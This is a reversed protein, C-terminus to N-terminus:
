GGVVEWDEGIVDAQSALWPIFTDDATKMGVWPALTVVKEGEDYSGEPYVIGCAVDYKGNGVLRLWMGKGNWGSRAVKKGAKMMEVAHGFSMSGSAQYAAEFQEKPSWSVYGEYGEVNPKGGDLYEVLYGEDEGNEDEPLIWGRFHTYDLRTLPEAKIRKTGIFEQM